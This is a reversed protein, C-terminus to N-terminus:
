IKNLSNEAYQKLFAMQDSDSADERFARAKTLTEKDAKQKSKTRSKKVPIAKKAPVTKRKAQGKNVSNKLVRFDNLVKVVIPDAITDVVEEPIGESIAFERIESAVNEDFDPVYDEITESFYQLQKEWQEQQVKEQQQQLQGQLGEREKRASWYKKQIQERKDKLEPIEYTDGEDRAKEIEAEIDHYQKALTQEQSLLVATSAQGLQQIEQLAQNREEELAKKAEGLERGKKSLSNDTQYGKLLEAFSVDAEEGDIKVRVKADL